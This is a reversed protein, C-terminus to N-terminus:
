NLMFEIGKRCVPCLQSRKLWEIICPEHFVHSPHCRLICVRDNEEFKALCIICEATAFTGTVYYFQQYVFKAIVQEKTPCTAKGIFIRYILEGIFWVLLIPTVLIIVSLVISFYACSLFIFSLLVMACVFCSETLFVATFIGVCFQLMGGMIVCALVENSLWHDGLILYFAYGTCTIPFTIAIANSILIAIVITEDSNRLYVLSTITTIFNGIFAIWYISYFIRQGVGHELASYCRGVSNSIYEIFQMITWTDGIEVTQDTPIAILNVPGCKKHENAEVFGSCNTLIRNSNLGTDCPSDDPIEGFKSCNTAIMFNAPLPVIRNSRYQILPIETNTRATIEPTQSENTPTSNM